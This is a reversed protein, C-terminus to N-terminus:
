ITGEFDFFLNEQQRAFRPYSGAALLNPNGHFIQFGLKLLEEGIGFVALKDRAERCILALPLGEAPNGPLEAFHGGIELNIDRGPRLRVGYASLPARALSRKDPQRSTRCDVPIVPGLGFEMDGADRRLGRVRLQRGRAEAGDCTHPPLDRRVSVQATPREDYAVGYTIQLPGVILLMVGAGSAGHISHNM